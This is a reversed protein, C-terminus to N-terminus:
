DFRALSFLSIDLESKGDLAMQALVEGIAASHKFGHGSCPSALVVRHSDPHFDIIFHEDPTVTYMCVGTQLCKDSIGFSRDRVITEYFYQIEEETVERQVTDADSTNFYQETLVKVGQIGDRPTPFVTYFDELKDGIWIIFPLNEMYFPELDEAEFWYIVQRYVKLKDKYDDPMFDVMWAGSSLILKDAHYEGLDSQVTVGDDDIRYNIVREGTRIVAGKEQALKLQVDVCREPRLIGGNPEYYAHDTPSPNLVSTKEKIGAPDLLDYAVDFRDALKATQTVFDEQGHFQASEGKPCIILGGTEYLLTEGSLDELEHWIEYARQVLPFYPAGEGNVQRIIRTDGHSSGMNHPPQFQDIGLVKVGRKALQYLSASGMAGLGVVIVDYKEDM